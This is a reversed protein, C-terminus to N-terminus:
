TYRIECKKAVPIKCVFTSEQSNPFQYFGSSQAEGLNLKVSKIQSILNSRTFNAM